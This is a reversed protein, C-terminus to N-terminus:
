PWAIGLCENCPRAGYPNPNQGNRTAKIPRPKCHTRRVFISGLDVITYFIDMLLTFFTYVVAILVAMAKVTPFDNNNLAELILGGLGPIGFFSELLLSGLFLLSGPNMIHTIIPIMANKLVHKFLVIKETVGKARATRVYDQYIEDLILTRFFRVDPGITVAIWILAPLIVYPVFYPFGFEYGSIEFLGLKYGFFYQGFLIYALSPFSMLAVTLFVVVRDILKGRHFSVFLSISISLVLGLVFAPFTVTLSPIAGQKVMEIIEQRSSWSRGFDFTFASQLTDWYQLYWPRDLGLERRLEAMQELSAHKGLLLYTPDGAVWNFLIFILFTVGVLVPIVYLTRRLIYGWINM